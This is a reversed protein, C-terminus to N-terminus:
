TLAVEETSKTNKFKATFEEVAKNIDYYAEMSPEFSYNIHCNSCFVIITQEYTKRIVSLSENGCQPCVFLKSSVVLAGRGRNALRDTLRFLKKRCFLVSNLAKKM